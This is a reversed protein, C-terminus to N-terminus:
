PIPAHQYGVPKLRVLRVMSLISIIILLGLGIYSSILAGGGRDCYDDFKDCIRNWRAHSNGHKGLDAMFTAAGDGSSALVVTIQESM